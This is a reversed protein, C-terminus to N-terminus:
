GAVYPSSSPAREGAVGDPAKRIKVMANNIPARMRASAANAAARASTM